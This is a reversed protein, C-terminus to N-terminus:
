GSKGALESLAEHDVTIESKARLSSVWAELAQAEKERRLSRNIEGRMEALTLSPELGTEEKTKQYAAEIEPEYVHVTAAIEQLKRHLLLKILAEKWFREITRMFAHERDLGLRQAEQVLLEREILSVLWPPEEGEGVREGGEHPSGIESLELELESANLKLNNIVVVPKQVTAEAAKPGCGALFAGGATVAAIGMGLLIMGFGVTRKM